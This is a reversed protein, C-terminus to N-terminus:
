AIVFWIQHPSYLHQTMLSLIDSSLPIRRLWTV